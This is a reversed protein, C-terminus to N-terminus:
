PFQRITQIGFGATTLNIPTGALANASSSALRLSNANVRIIYYTTSASLPAPLNLFNQNSIRVPLGTPFGHGPLTITETSLNVNTAGAFTLQLNFDMGSQSAATQPGVQPNQVYLFNGVLDVSFLNSTDSNIADKAASAVADADIYSPFQLEISVDGAMPDSGGSDINLWLYYSTAGNYFKVYSNQIYDVPSTGTQSTSVSGSFGGFYSGESVEVDTRNEVTIINNNVSVIAVGSVPSAIATVIADALQSSTYAGTLTVQVGNSAGGQSGPDSGLGNLNTWVYYGTSVDTFFTFGGLTTIIESGPNTVNLTFGSGSGVSPQPSSNGFTSNAFSVVASGLYSVNMNTTQGTCANVIQQAIADPTGTSETSVQIGTGGASPDSGSGDVVFWVYFSSNEGNAFIFYDGGNISSGNLTCTWQTGSNGSTAQSVTYQTVQPLSPFDFQIQNRVGSSFSKSPYRMAASKLIRRTGQYFPM